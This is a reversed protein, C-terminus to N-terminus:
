LLEPEANNILVVQEDTLAWHAVGTERYHQALEDAEPEEGCHPIIPRDVLALGDLVPDIGCVNPVQEPDDMSELGDLSPCMVCAGASYGAYVIADDRILKALVTDAGSLLLQARLVFTNGGRVWVVDYRALEGATPGTRLDVEDVEFGSTRLPVIDSKVASARARPPWADCANAIVAARGAGGVLDLFRDQHAGFRFSALFLRM